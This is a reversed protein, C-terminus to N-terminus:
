RRWGGNLRLMRPAFGAAWLCSMEVCATFVSGCVSAVCCTNSCVNVPMCTDVGLFLPVGAGIGHVSVWLCLGLSHGRVLGVRLAYRGQPTDSREPLTPERELARVRRPTEREGERSVIPREASFSLSLWVESCHGLARLLFDEFWLIPKQSLSLRFFESARLPTGPLLLELRSLHRVLRHYGHQAAGASM